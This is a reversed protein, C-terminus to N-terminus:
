PIRSLCYQVLVHTGAPGAREQAAGRLHGFRVQGGGQLDVERVEVLGDVQRQLSAAQAELLARQEQLAAVRKDAGGEAAVSDRKFQLCAPLCPLSVGTQQSCM